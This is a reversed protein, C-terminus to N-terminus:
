CMAELKDQANGEPCASLPLQPDLCLLVCSLAQSVADPCTFSMLASLVFPVRHGPWMGRGVAARTWGRGQERLRPAWEGGPVQIVQPEDWLLATPTADQSKWSAERGM